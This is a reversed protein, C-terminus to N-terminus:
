PEDGYRDILEQRRERVSKWLQADFEASEESM